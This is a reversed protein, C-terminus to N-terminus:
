DREYVIRNNQKQYSNVIKKYEGCVALQPSGIENGEEDYLYLTYEGDALGSMDIAFEYFFDSDSTNTLADFSFEKSSLNNVLKISTCEVAKYRNITIKALNKGLVIM